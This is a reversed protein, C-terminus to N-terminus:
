VGLVGARWVVYLVRTDTGARDEAVLVSTLESCGAILLADLVEKKKPWNLFTGYSVISVPALDIRWSWISKAQGCKEDDAKGDLRNWSAM